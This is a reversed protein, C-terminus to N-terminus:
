AGLVPVGNFGRNLVGAVCGDRPVGIGILAVVGTMM